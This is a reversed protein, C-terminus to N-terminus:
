HRQLTGDSSSLASMDMLGRMLTAREQLAVTEILAQKDGVDLPLHACLLNVMDDDAMSAIDDWPIEVQRRTCFSRLSGIFLERDFLKPQDSNYDGAFEEWSVLVRRFGALSEVEELVRFRCFGTLVLVIRGDHTESYSTIRGACGIRHIADSTEADGAAPQVMGIIHQDALAQRVMNLYRPEFINLPLQVGPLVVAGPLPFIPVIKPLQEFDPVFPSHKM